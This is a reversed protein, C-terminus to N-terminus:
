EFYHTSLVTGNSLRGGSKAHIKIPEQYSQCFIVPYYAYSRCSDSIHLELLTHLEAGQGLTYIANPRITTKPWLPYSENWYFEVKRDGKKLGLVGNQGWRMTGVETGDVKIVLIGVSWREWRPDKAKVELWLYSYDERIQVNESSIPAKLSACGQLLSLASLVVLPWLLFSNKIKLLGRAHNECSIEPVRKIVM